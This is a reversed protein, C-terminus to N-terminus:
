LYCQLSTFQVFFSRITTKMHSCLERVETQELMNSGYLGLSPAVRALYRTISNVDSFQVERLLCLFLYFDLLLFWCLWVEAM